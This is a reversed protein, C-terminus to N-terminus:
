LCRDTMRNVPPTHIGAHMPVSVGGGAWHMSPYVDGLYVGGPLGGGQASLGRASVGGRVAVAASLVCGVQICEQRM